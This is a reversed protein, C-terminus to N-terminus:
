RMSEGVGHVMAGPVILSDIAACSCGLDYRQFILRLPTANARVQVVDVDFRVFQVRRTTNHQTPTAHSIFHLARGIASLEKATADCAAKSRSSIFVTAGNRVFGESIMRGIGQGGGTVLATKGKVSFLEKIEM